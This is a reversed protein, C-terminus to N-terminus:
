WKDRKCKQEAWSAKIGMYCGCEKCVFGELRSSCGRCVELRRMYEDPEVHKMGTIIHETTAKALNVGRQLLNPKKKKAGGWSSKKSIPEYITTLKGELVISDEKQSKAIKDYMAIYSKQWDEKGFIGLGFLLTGIGSCFSSFCVPEVGSEKCRVLYEEYDFIDDMKKIM